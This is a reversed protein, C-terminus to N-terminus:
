FSAVSKSLIRIKEGSLLNSKIKDKTTVVGSIAGTMPILERPLKPFSQKSISFLM